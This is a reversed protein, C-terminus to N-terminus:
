LNDREDENQPDEIEDDQQRGLPLLLLHVLEQLVELHVVPHDRRAADVTLDGLQAFLADLELDGFLNLDLDRFRGDAAILPLRRDDVRRLRLLAADSLVMDEFTRHFNMVMMATKMM